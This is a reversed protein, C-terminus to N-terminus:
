IDYHLASPMTQVSTDSEKNIKHEDFKREVYEYMSGTTSIGLMASRTTVSRRWGLDKSKFRTWIRNCSWSSSKQLVTVLGGFPFLRAHGRLGM